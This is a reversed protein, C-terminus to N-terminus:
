IDGEQGSRASEAEQRLYEGLTNAGEISLRTDAMLGMYDVIAVYVYADEPHGEPAKFGQVLVQEQMESELANVKRM